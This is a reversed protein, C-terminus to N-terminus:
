SIAELEVAGVAALIAPVSLRLLLSSALVGSGQIFHRRNLADSSM